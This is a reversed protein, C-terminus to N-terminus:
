GKQNASVSITGCNSQALATIATTDDSPPLFFSKDQVLDDTVRAPQWATVEGSANGCLITGRISMSVEIHGDPEEEGSLMNGSSNECPSEESSDSFSTSDEDRYGPDDSVSQRGM